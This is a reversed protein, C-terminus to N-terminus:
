NHIGLENRLEQLTYYNGNKFNEQAKKIKALETKTLKIPEWDAPVFGAMQYKGEVYMRTASQLIDSYTIGESAAKKQAAKKLKPDIKFIVQTIM